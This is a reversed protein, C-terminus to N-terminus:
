NENQNSNISFSLGFSLAYGYHTLESESFYQKGSIANLSYDAHFKSFVTLNKGITYELYLGAHVPWDYRPLVTYKNEEGEDMLNDNDDHLNYKHKAQVLRSAAIGLYPTVSFKDGFAYGISVPLSIYDYAFNYESTGDYLELDDNYAQYEFDYAFGKQVYLLDVMLTMKNEFKLHYHIGGHFGPNYGTKDFFASSHCVNTMSGGALVGIKHTQSNVNMALCTFIALVIFKLTKQYHM